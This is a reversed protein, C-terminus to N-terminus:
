KLYHKEYTIYWSKLRDFMIEISKKPNTSNPINELHPHTLDYLDVLKYLDVMDAWWSKSKMQYFWSKLEKYTKANDTKKTGYKERSCLKCLQFASDTKTLFANGSKWKSCASCIRKTGKKEVRPEILGRSKKWRSYQQSCNGSCCRTDRRIAWFQTECWACTVDRKEM